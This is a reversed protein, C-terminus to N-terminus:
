LESPFRPKEKQKRGGKNTQYTTKQQKRESKNRKEVKNGKYSM